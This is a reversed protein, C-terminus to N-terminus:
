RLAELGIKYSISFYIRLNAQSITFTRLTDSVNQMTPRIRFDLFLSVEERPKYVSQFLQNVRRM